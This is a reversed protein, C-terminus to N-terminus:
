VQSIDEKFSLSLTGSILKNIGVASDPHIVINVKLNVRQSSPVKAM